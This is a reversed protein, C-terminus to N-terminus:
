TPLYTVLQIHLSQVADLDVNLDGLLIPEVGKFIQLAEKLDLLKDCALPSLYAGILPTQIRRTLINCRVVNPGHFHTSEIGWRNTRDRSVM